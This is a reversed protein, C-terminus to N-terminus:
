QGKAVAVHVEGALDQDAMPGGFLVPTLALGGLVAVVVAVRAAVLVGQAVVLAAM